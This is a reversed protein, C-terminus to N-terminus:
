PLAPLVRHGCPTCSVGRGCCPLSQHDLRSSPSTAFRRPSARQPPSPACALPRAVRFSDPAARPSCLLSTPNRLTKCRKRTKAM